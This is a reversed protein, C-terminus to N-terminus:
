YYKKQNYFYTQTLFHPFTAFIFVCLHFNITDMMWIQLYDINDKQNREKWGKKLPIHM